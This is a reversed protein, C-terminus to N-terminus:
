STTNTATIKNEKGGLIFSNEVGSISNGGSTGAVISDSVTIIGGQLNMHILKDTDYRTAGDPVFVVEEIHQPAYNFDSNMRIEGM